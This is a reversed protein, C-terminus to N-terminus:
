KLQVLVQEAYKEIENPDDMKGLQEIAKQAIELKDVLRQNQELLFICDDDMDIKDKHFQGKNHVLKKKIAEISM